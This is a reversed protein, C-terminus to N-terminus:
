FGRQLISLRPFIEGEGTVTILGDGDCKRSWVTFEPSQMGTRNGIPIPGILSLYKKGNADFGQKLYGVKPTQGAGENNRSYLKALIESPIM